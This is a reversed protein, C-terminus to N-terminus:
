LDVNRGVNGGPRDDQCVVWSGGIRGAEHWTKQVLPPLFCPM